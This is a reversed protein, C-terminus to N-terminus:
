GLLLWGVPLNATVASSVRITITNAATDTTYWLRRSGIDAKPTLLVFSGGTVDLGPSVVVSSTGTAIVAVGSAKELRLRGTTRLAYGTTTSLWAATGSSSTAYLGYNTTSAARVGLGGDSTGVVGRGANSVGLVGVASADQNAYGFVGTEEPRFPMSALPGSYGQVGTNGAGQVGVGGTGMVGPGDVADGIVAALGKNAQGRLGPGNVGIAEFALGDMRSISTTSVANNNAGLVVDGDTGALVPDVRGL